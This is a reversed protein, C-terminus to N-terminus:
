RSVHLSIFNLYRKFWNLLSEVVVEQVPEDHLEYISLISEFVTRDNSKLSTDLLEKALMPKLTQQKEVLDTLLQPVLSLQGKAVLASLMSHIAGSRLHLGQQKMSQFEHCAEALKNFEVLCNILTSSLQSDLVIM